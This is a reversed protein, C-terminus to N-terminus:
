LFYSLLGQSAGGFRCTSAVHRIHLMESVLIKRYQPEEDLIAINGLRIQLGRGIPPWNHGFTHNHEVSYSEQAWSNEDEATKGHRDWTVRMAIKAVSRRRWILNRKM